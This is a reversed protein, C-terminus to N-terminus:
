MDQGIIFGLYTWNPASYSIPIFLFSDYKTALSSVPIENGAWKITTFWTFARSTGDHLFILSFPRGLEQNSVAVTVDGALNCLQISGNDLDFTTTGAYAQPYVKKDLFSAESSTKVLNGWTDTIDNGNAVTTITTNKAM